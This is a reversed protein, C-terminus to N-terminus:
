QISWVGCRSTTFGKDTDLITIAAPGNAIQNTIISQLDGDLSSLRAYYCGNGGSTKYTGPAIDVGVEYTGDTFSTKPGTPEPAPTPVSINDGVKLDGASATPKSDDKKKQDSSAGAIGLLLVIVIVWVWWKKYWPKSPKTSKDM